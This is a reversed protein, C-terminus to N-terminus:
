SLMQSVSLFKTRFHWPLELSISLWGTHTSWLFWVCLTTQLHGRPLSHHGLLIVPKSRVKLIGLPFQTKSASIVLRQQFTSSRNFTSRQLQLQFNERPLKSFARTFGMIGRTWWLWCFNYSESDFTGKLCWPVSANWSPPCVCSCFILTIPWASLM